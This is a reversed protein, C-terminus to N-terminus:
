LGNCAKKQNQLGASWSKLKREEHIEGLKSKGHVKPFVVRPEAALQSGGSVEVGM